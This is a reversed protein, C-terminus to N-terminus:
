VCCLILISGCVVGSAPYYWDSCCIVRLSNFWSSGVRLYTVKGIFLECVTFRVLLKGSHPLSSSRCRECATFWCFSGCTGLLAWDKWTRSLPPDASHDGRKYQLSSEVTNVKVLVKLWTALSDLVDFCQSTYIYVHIDYRFNSQFNWVSFVATQLITLLYVTRAKYLSSVHWATGAVSRELVQSLRRHHLFYTLLNFLFQSYCCYLFASM